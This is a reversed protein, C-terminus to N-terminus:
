AIVVEANAFQGSLVNRAMAICEARDNYGQRESGGVVNGNSAILRWEYRKSGVGLRRWWYVEITANM